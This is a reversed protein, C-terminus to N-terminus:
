FPQFPYTTFSACIQTFEIRSKTEFIQHWILKSTEIKLWIQSTQHLCGLGKWIWILTRHRLVEHTRNSTKGQAPTPNRGRPCRQKPPFNQSPKRKWQSCFLYCRGDGRFRATLILLQFSFFSIKGLYLFWINKNKLPNNNMWWTGATLKLPTVRKTKNEWREQLHSFFPHMKSTTIYTSPEPSRNKEGNKKISINMANTTKEKLVRALERKKKKPQPNGLRRSTQCVWPHPPSSQFLYTSPGVFVEQKFAKLFPDLRSSM